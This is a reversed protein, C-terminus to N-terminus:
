DQFIGGMGESAKNEEEKVKNILDGKEKGTVEKVLDKSIEVAKKCQEDTGRLYCYYGQKGIISGDKFMISARSVVDDKFLVDRVKQLNKSEFTLVIEM